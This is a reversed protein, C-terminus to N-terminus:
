AYRIKQANYNQLLEAASLARNYIRIVSISGRLYNTAVTTEDWRRAIRIEGGSQPTGTYSLNSVETDNTYQRLISGNYTGAFYTWTNLTPTIGTNTRWAGNYYGLALAYSGPANNTGLSFNIANTLNFQNCVVATVKGSLSLSINAWAEITWTGLSGINPVSAYQLSTDLFSLYGSNASNYTPSNFLTANRGFVTLDNWTSGTGNYSSPNGADLYLQLGSSVVPSSSIPQRGYGNIGEVSSLFPM